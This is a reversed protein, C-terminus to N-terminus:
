YNFESTRAKEKERALRLMKKRPDEVKKAEGASGGLKKPTERLGFSKALHGLHLTKVNFFQREAALHTAYARIHSIFAHLARDQAGSDELLWREVDLHWTTAHTDWNGTRDYKSVTKPNKEAFSSELIKEYLEIRLGGSKPHVARLKGDLYGEEAGPLLFLTAEGAHGARASRGVRHLHDDLSFPPDYEVVASVNPIDLGRSAVDTCFLIQHASNTTEGSHGSEATKSANGAKVFALLTATRVQQSLSGHLRFVAAGSAIKPATSACVSSAPAKKTESDDDDDNEPQKGLTRGGRAFVEYHFDVSDSCSFFVVIRSAPRTCLNRLLACLTVLRLKSPVVVVKQTLQDPATASGASIDSPELNEVRIVQPRELVVDGLKKVEPPMTASCLVNVRTRPLTPWKATRLLASKALLQTTIKTITEEFGLDVLRDGEDLILWRVQSVDLSSTNEFHDALRGPTAVLINVGKRIRAKESKKKEGGVVIGPVLATHCKLLADLVLYIQQALERTPTLILAFLGDQRRILPAEAMLRQVVPLVFALTKGSGTQAQVFLDGQAAHLAPVVRQQVETPARYGLYSTLHNVLRENLGLGAFTSHDQLPANSPAAAPAATGNEAVSAIKQNSTFLSSVRTKDAGHPEAARPRKSGSDSTPGTRGLRPEEAAPKRKAVPRREFKPAQERIEGEKTKERRQTARPKVEISNVESASKKERGELKLRLERRQRWTGGVVKVSRAAKAPPALTAFNLLIGDDEM